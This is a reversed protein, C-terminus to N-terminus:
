ARGTIRKYEDYGKNIFLAYSSFAGKAIFKVTEKFECISDSNLGIKILLYLYMPSAIINAGIIYVLRLLKKM